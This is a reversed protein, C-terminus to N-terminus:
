RTLDALLGARHRERASAPSLPRGDLVAEIESSIPRLTKTKTRAGTWELHEGDTIALERGSTALVLRGVRVGTKVDAFTIGGAQTFAIRAEDISFACGHPTRFDIGFLEHPAREAASTSPTGVVAAHGTRLDVTSLRGDRHFIAVRRGSPSFVLKGVEADHALELPTGRKFGKATITQPTVTHGAVSFLQRGGPHIWLTEDRSITAVYGKETSLGDGRWVSGDSLHLWPRGDFGVHVLRIAAGNEAIWTTEIDVRWSRKGTRLSWMEAITNDAAVLHEGCVAGEGPLRCWRTPRVARPAFRHVSTGFLVTTGNALRVIEDASPGLRAPVGTRGDIRVLKDESAVLLAGRADIGVAEVAFGPITSFLEETVPPGNGRVRFVRFRRAEYDGLGVKTGDEFVFGGYTPVRLAIEVPAPTTFMRFGGDEDLAWPTGRHFGVSRVSKAPELEVLTTTTGTGLDTLLVEGSRTGFVVREGREDVAIADVVGWRRQQYPLARRTENARETAAVDVTRMGGIVLMGAPGLTGESLGPSLREAFVEADAGDETRLLRTADAQREQAVQTLLRGDRVQLVRVRVNSPFTREWRVIGTRAEFARITHDDSAFVIAGDSHIPTVGSSARGPVPFTAVLKWTQTDIISVRHLGRTGGTLVVALLAGDEVTTAAVYPGVHPALGLDVHM